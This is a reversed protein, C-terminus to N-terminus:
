KILFSKKLAFEQTTFYGNKNLNVLKGLSEILKTIIYIAKYIYIYMYIYM